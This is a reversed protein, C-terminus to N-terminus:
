PSCYTYFMHLKMDIDIEICLLNEQYVFSVGSPMMMVLVLRIISVVIDILALIGFSDIKLIEKYVM